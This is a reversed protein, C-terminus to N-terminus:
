VSIIFSRRTARVTFDRKNANAVFSRPNLRLIYEADQEVPKNRGDVIDLATAPEIVTAYTYAFNTITDVAALNEAHIIGFIQKASLLDTANVIELTSASTSVQSNQTDASSVSDTQTSQTSVSVSQQDAISLAESITAYAQINANADSTDAASNADTQSVKALYNASETDAATNSEVVQAIAIWQANALDAATVTESITAGFIAQVSETDTASGSETRDAATAMFRDSADAASNTEAQTAFAASGALEADLATNSEAISIPINTGAAETDSASGSESIAAPTIYTSAQVDNANLAETESASFVAQASEADAATGAETRDAPTAMTRDSADAASNSEAQTAFASSGAIETDAATNGEALSVALNAGAVESDTATVSESIAAPTTYTSSQTDAATLTELESASFMAQASVVEVASGSEAESASFVSQANSSDAGSAAEAGTAPTSFSRDSAEAASLSETQSSAFSAQSSAADAGTGSETISSAALLQSSATEALTVAEAITASQADYADESDYAFDDTWSSFGSSSALGDSNQLRFGPYGATLPSSTDTYTGVLTYDVYGKIVGNGLCEITLLFSDVHADYPNGFWDTVYVTNKLLTVYGAPGSCPKLFYGERSGNAQVLPGCYEGQPGPVIRVTSRQADPQNNQFWAQKQTYLGAGAYEKLAGAGTTRLGGTINEQWRSDISALTTASAQTFDFRNGVTEVSKVPAIFSSSITEAATNSEAVTSNFINPASNIDKSYNAPRIIISTANWSSGNSATVSALTGITTIPLSGWRCLTGTYNITYNGPLTLFGANHEHGMIIHLSNPINVTATPFPVNASTGGNAVNTIIEIPNTADELNYITIDGNMVTANTCTFAHTTPLSSALIYFLSCINGNPNTTDYVRQWGAPGTIQNSGVSNPMLFAFLIQGDTVAGTTITVVTAAVSNNFGTVFGPATPLGEQISASKVVVADVADNSTVAENVYFNWNTLATIQSIAAHSIPIFGLM